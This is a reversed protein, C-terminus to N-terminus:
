LPLAEVMCLGNKSNAGTAGAAEGVKGRVVTAQAGRQPGQGAGTHTGM